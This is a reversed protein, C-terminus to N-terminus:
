KITTLKVRWKLRTHKSPEESFTYQGNRRRNNKTAAAM